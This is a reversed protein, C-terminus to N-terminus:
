ATGLGLFADWGRWDLSREITIPVDPPLKGNRKARLFEARSKIGLKRVIPISDRVSLKQAPHINANGFFEGWTTWGTERYIQDPAGPIDPPRKGAACWTRWDKSDRLGQARVYARASKYPRFTRNYNAVFGTGM